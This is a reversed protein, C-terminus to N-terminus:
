ELPFAPDRLLTYRCEINGPTQRSPAPDVRLVFAEGPTHEGFIKKIKRMRVEETSRLDAELTHSAGVLICTRVKPGNAPKSLASITEAKQAILLTRGKMLKTEPIEPHIASNMSTLTRSARRSLTGEDTSSLGGNMSMFELTADLAPTMLYAAGVKVATRRSLLASKADAPKKPDDTSQPTQKPVASLLLFIGAGFEFAGVTNSMIYRLKIDIKEDLEKSTDVFFIALRKEAATRIVQEYHAGSLARAMSDQFKQESSYDIAALELIVCDVDNLVAPDTPINHNGYVIKHSAHRGEVRVINGEPSRLLNDVAQAAGLGLGALGARFFGRRTFLSGVISEAPPAAGTGAADEIKSDSPRKM